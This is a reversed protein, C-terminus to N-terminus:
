KKGKVPAKATTKSAPKSTTPKSNSAAPKAAPKAVPKGTPKATPKAMPKSTTPKANSAATKAVPKGTPKSVPKSAAAPKSNSAAPKAVPKSTPKAMPKSAAPKAVPKSQVPQEKKVVPKTAPKNNNVEVKKPEEKKSENVAPKNTEVPKAKPQSKVADKREDVISLSVIEQKGDKQKILQTSFTSFSIKVNRESLVTMAMAITKKIEKFKHLGEVEGNAIKFRMELLQIKLKSILNGLENDTKTRLEKIM